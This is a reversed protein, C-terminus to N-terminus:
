TFRPDFAFSEAPGIKVRKFDSHAPDLLYNWEGPVVASPVRLVASRKSRVWEMGLTQTEIAHPFQRWNDPLRAPKEILEAPVEASVLVWAVDFLTEADDVNALVEVVALARSEAAYVLATGSPSWRGGYLRAGDGSFATAGYKAACLRWVIVSSV